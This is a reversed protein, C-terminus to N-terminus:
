LLADMKQLVPFFCGKGPGQSPEQELGKLAMKDCTGEMDDNRNGQVSFAEYLPPEVLGIEQHM